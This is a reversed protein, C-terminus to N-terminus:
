SGQLLKELRGAAIPNWLRRQVERSIEFDRLMEPIRVIEQPSDLGRAAGYRLFQEGYGVLPAIFWSCLFCPISRIACDVAVSSEVAVAFWIDALLEKTLAGQVVDVIARDAAQLVSRVIRRRSAASEFPHLKVKVRRGHMRAIVCLRPLVEDYLIRTRGQTLEYQESFLVVNGAKKSTDGSRDSTEAEPAGQEIRSAAAFTREMFDREMEGKVLYTDCAPKRLPLLVNLAGHDCHVTRLKRERALLVPIRNMPNNEDGCLVASIQENRLVERWADRVRLWREFSGGIGGFWGREKAWELEKSESRPGEGMGAWREELVRAENRTAESITVPAYGALSRKHVNGALGAMDGSKRTTVLLFRREPLLKAYANLMRTVNSYSSPLLVASNTTLSSSRTVRARLRFDMDWKDLAVQLIQGPSLRSLAKGATRLARTLPWDNRSEMWQVGRGAAIGVLEAMPHQRTGVLEAKDVAWAVRKVIVLQLMELLRLPALIEWWDLGLEDVLIGLGPSLIEAIRRFDEPGRGFGYFGRVSCGLKRGWERYAAEGAWGLDIVLDWRSRSWVGELPSDDPHVLLVKM